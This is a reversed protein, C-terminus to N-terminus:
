FKDKETNKLKSASISKDYLIFFWYIYWWGLLNVNSSLDDSLHDTLNIKQICCMYVEYLRFYPVSIVNKVTRTYSSDDEIQEFIKM